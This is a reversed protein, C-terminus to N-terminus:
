ATTIVYIGAANLPKTVYRGVMRLCPGTPIGEAIGADDNMLM